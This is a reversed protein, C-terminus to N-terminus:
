IIEVRLVGHESSKFSYFVKICVEEVEQHTQIDFYDFNDLNHCRCNQQEFVNQKKRFSHAATPTSTEACCHKAAAGVAEAEGEVNAIRPWLQSPGSTRATTGPKIILYAIILFILAPVEDSPRGVQGTEQM